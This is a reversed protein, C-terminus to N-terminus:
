HNGRGEIQSRIIKGQDKIVEDKKALWVSVAGVLCLRQAETLPKSGKAITDCISNAIDVYDPYPPLTEIETGKTAKRAMM